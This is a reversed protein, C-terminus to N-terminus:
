APAPTGKPVVRFGDVIPAYLAELQAGMGARDAVDAMRESGLVLFRNWDVRDLSDSPHFYRVVGYTRAFAMAADLQADRPSQALVPLAAALVAACAIKKM